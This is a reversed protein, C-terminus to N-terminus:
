GGGDRLYVVIDDDIEGNSPDPDPRLATAPTGIVGDPGASVLRAHLEQEAPTVGLPRQLVVFRGWPDLIRTAGGSDVRTAAQLYPGNWGTRRIPDYAQVAAGSPLTAPQRLLDGLQVPQEGM